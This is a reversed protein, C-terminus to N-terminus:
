VSYITPLTLHTYSVPRQTSYGSSDGSENVDTLLPSSYRVTPEMGTDRTKRDMAMKQCVKNLYTTGEELFTKKSEEWDEAEACDRTGKRKEKCNKGSLTTVHLQGKKKKDAASNDEVRKTNDSSLEAQLRAVETPRKIRRAEPQIEEDRKAENAELKYNTYSSTGLSETSEAAGKGITRTLIRFGETERLIRFGEPQEGEPKYKKPM